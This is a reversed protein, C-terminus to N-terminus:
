KIKESPLAKYYPPLGASFRDASWEDFTRTAQQGILTEIIDFFDLQYRDKLVEEKPKCKVLFVTQVNQHDFTRWLEKDKLLQFANGELARIVAPTRFSNAREVAHKYEWLITYAKAAGWCPYRGFRDAFQAVFHKGREYNRAYPVKWNFDSTGVIGEMAQPGAGECMSLELIPVVIQMEKKLGLETAVSVAMTMEAGFHCLVLVDPKWLRALRMKNKFAQETVGPFETYSVRHYKTDEAGSFKRISTEASRGWNYDAVIFFYKNRDAPFYKKLYTGLAKGGMWASYCARFTHRHGKSGTTANASTVTAMFLRGKKQCIDSVKIAVSSSAGGFIMGVGKTEILQTVNLASLEPNSKSDRRYLEVPRNLIGGTANIEDLALQAGREQDIGIYMYPGTQPYNMGIKIIQEAYLPDSLHGIVLFGSLCIIFVNFHFTKRYRFYNQMLM